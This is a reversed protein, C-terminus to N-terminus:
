PAPTDEALLGFYELVEEMFAAHDADSLTGPEFGAYVSDRTATTEYDTGIGDDVFRVDKRRHRRGGPVDAHQGGHALDGPEALRRALGRELRGIGEGAEFGLATEGFLSVDDLWVGLNQVAWDTAYVIAVEIEQGRYASLRRVLGALWGVLRDRREM